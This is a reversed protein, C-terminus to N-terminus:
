RLAGKTSPVSTGDPAVAQRLALALAKFAAEAKHHDNAGRLVDVHLACRASMALSTFFHTLNECAIDGLRERQLDLSVVAAPRGSFDIVVRALAEDLPAYASGFRAVGRRAGWVEDLAQGLVLACDEATHHDDVQLDGQCTLDLDMRSHCALATLMHDLFGLGTAIDARGAGRLCLAARINTEKTQRKVASRLAPASTTPPEPSAEAGPAAADVGLAERLRAFSRADPPCTIRLYGRLQPEEPFKRVAIGSEALSRWVSEADPFRALIFNGQSPLPEGGVAELLAALEARNARCRRLREQLEEQKATLLLEALATSVGSVAYPSGAARLSAAAAESPAIAYGLRLGALGLAKSFSRVLFVNPLDVLAATPDEEAFESYALDVLLAAERQQAAEAVDCITATELAAGTPNNPTVLFALATNENLAARFEGAPFDDALWPISQLEADYRDAYVAFMEFTPAHGLLARRTPSLSTAIIREIADDGGATVVLRAPDVGHQAALQRELAAASPYRGIREAPIRGLLATVA